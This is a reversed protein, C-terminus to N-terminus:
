VTRILPKRAVTVAPVGARLPAVRSLRSAAVSAVVELGAARLPSELGRPSWGSGGGRDPGGVAPGHPIFVWGGPRLLAALDGIARSPEGPMLRSLFDYAAIADYGGLRHAGQLEAADVVTVQAGRQKWREGTFGAPGGIGLISPAPVSALDTRAVARQIRRDADKLTRSTTGGGSGASPAARWWAPSREELLTDFLEQWERGVTEPLYAKVTGLAAAGMRRRGDPDGMVQSLARALAGVDGDSVLLGDRGSTIIDSPGRPCDFSVVALGKSMAEILVMGFGEFRSSLCFISAKALEEGIRDTRGMLYISNYLGRRLIVNRLRRGQPGSGYIRLKWDPHERLAEEFAPILLDFGKLRVLRGAAVVTTADPDAPGGSLETLANPIRVVRTRTGTLARTYDHLDGATLVALADLRGYHALLAKALGPRHQRFNMHEQGITVVGPGSLQAALLNLSPRTSVLIGSRRELLRRVLQVDTWLSCRAFSSDEQHVLLSPMGSLRQQVYGLPGTRRGEPTRDDAPTLTVGEPIDFFPEERDRLQSLVEVEHSRALYGALNLVTRVTGGMGYGHMILICIRPQGHRTAPLQRRSPGKQVLARAVPVALARAVRLASRQLPHPTVQAPQDADSGALAQAPDPPAAPPRPKSRISLGNSATFYPRVSRPGSALDLTREPFVIASKKDAIGDLYGALRLTKSEGDLRLHLDWLETGAVPTDALGALPLRARIRTGDREAGVAVAPSNSRSSAVLVADAVTAPEVGFLTAEIEVDVDQVVVRRVEAHPPVEDVALSLGGHRTTYPRLRRLGGAGGVVSSAARAEDIASLVRREVDGDATHLVVHADWVTPRLGGPLARGDVDVTLDDVQEGQGVPTRFEATSGRDRLVLECGAAGPVASGNGLKGHLVVRPGDVEVRSIRTTGPVDAEDVHESGGSGFRAPPM